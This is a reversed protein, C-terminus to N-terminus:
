YPWGAPQGAGPGWSNSESIIGGTHSHWTGSWGVAGYSTVIGTNYCYAIDLDVAVGVLGGANTGNYKVNDGSTPVGILHPGDDKIWGASIPASNYCYKIESKFWADSEYTKLGSGITGILGAIGGAVNGRARIDGSNYCAYATLSGFQGVFGIIGGVNSWVNVSRYRLEVTPDDFPKEARAFVIGTNASNNVTIFSDCKGVIGGVNVGGTINGRNICSEITTRNNVYAIIGGTGYPYEAMVESNAWAPDETTTINGENVCDEMTITFNRTYGIIGAALRRATINAKNICNLFSLNGFPKGVFGAVDYGQSSDDSQTTIEGALTLNKFTAGAANPFLSLRKTNGATAALPLNINITKGNGDFTGSFYHQPMDTEGEAVNGALDDITTITNSNDWGDGLKYFQGAGYGGSTNRIAYCFAQWEAFSNIINPAAESGKEYTVDFKGVCVANPPTSSGVFPTYTITGSAKLINNVTDDTPYGSIAPNYQPDNAPRVFNHEWVEKWKAIDDQTPSQPLSPINQFVVETLCISFSQQDNVLQLYLLDGNLKENEMSIKSETTKDYGSADYFVLLTSKNAQPVPVALKLSVRGGKNCPMITNDSASIELPAALPTTKIGAMVSMEAFSCMGGVTDADAIVFKGNKNASETQYTPKDALYITWSGSFTVNPHAYGAIGGKTVTVNSFKFGQVYCNNVSGKEIDGFLGGVYDAGQVISTDVSFKTTKDPLTVFSNNLRLFEAKGVIGGVYNGTGVVKATSYVKEFVNENASLFGVLGGVYTKGSVTFQTSSSEGCYTNSNKFEAIFGTATGGIIGGVYDGTTATINAKNQGSIEFRTIDAGVSPATTGGVIGGVYNGTATIAGTNIFVGPLTGTDGIAYGLIYTGAGFFVGAGAKIGGIIGGVYNGTVTLTNSNSIASAVSGTKGEILAGGEAICGIVGGVYNGKVNLSQKTT